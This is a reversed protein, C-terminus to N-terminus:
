WDRHVYWFDKDWGRTTFRHPILEDVARTVDPFAYDHGCLLGGPLLLIRWALIDAKVSEYDHAGDIFIMDFIPKRFKLWIEQAADVSSRRKPFVNWLDKVNARFQEYLWDPPKGELAAQHEPSGAWTDIANVTGPTNEALAVTSRGMWCGIEAISEHTAAQAALWSLEKQSMWGPILLAKEINVSTQAIM